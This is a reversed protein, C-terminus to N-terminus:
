FFNSMLRLEELRKKEETVKENLTGFERIPHKRRTLNYRNIIIESKADLFLIKFNLEENSELQDLIDNIEDFFVRSRMDVVLAIKDTECCDILRV